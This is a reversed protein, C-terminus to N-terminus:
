GPVHTVHTVTAHLPLFTRNLRQARHIVAFTLSETQKSYLLYRKAHMQHPTSSSSSSSSARPLAVCASVGPLTLGTIEFHKM